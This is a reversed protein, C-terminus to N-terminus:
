SVRNEIEEMRAEVMERVKRSSDSQLFQRIEKVTDEPMENLFCAVRFRVSANSHKALDHWITMISPYDNGLKRIWGGTQEWCGTGGQIFAALCKAKVVDITVRGDLLDHVADVVDLILIQHAPNKIYYTANEKERERGFTFFM